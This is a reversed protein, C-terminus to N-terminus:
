IFIKILLFHEKLKKKRKPKGQGFQTGIETESVGTERSSQIYNYFQVVLPVELVEKTDGLLGDSVDTDDDEDMLYLTHLDANPDRLILVHLSRENNKQKNRWQNESANPYM